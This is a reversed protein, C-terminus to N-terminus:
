RQVEVARSGGRWTPFAALCSQFHICTRVRSVRLPATTGHLIMGALQRRTVRSANTAGSDSVHSRPKSTLARELQYLRSKLMSDGDGAFSGQLALASSVPIVYRLDAHLLDAIAQARSDIERLWMKPDADNEPTRLREIGNLTVLKVQSQDRPPHDRDRVQRGGGFYEKWTSLETKTIGEAISAVMVLADAAPLRERRMEPETAIAGSGPADIVVLGADLLPHPYNIIAHRWRPVDVTQLDADTERTTLTNQGDGTDQGPSSDARTKFAGAHMGWSVADVLSIRRTEALAALAKAISTPENPDFLIVRWEREDEILDMLRRPSERTEIPLLRISTKQSADFRVETICRSNFGMRSPLLPRTLDGFFLVNLLDSKGRDPEAIFVITVREQTVRKSLAALIAEAEASSFHHETLVAQVREIQAKAAYRWSQLSSLRETIAFKRNIM